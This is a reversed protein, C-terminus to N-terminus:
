GEEKELEDDSKPINTTAMYREQVKIQAMVNDSFRPKKLNEDTHCNDVTKAYNRKHNL